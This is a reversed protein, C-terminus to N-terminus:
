AAPACVHHQQKLAVLLNMFFPAYEPRHMIAQFIPNAALTKLWDLCLQTKDHDFRSSHICGMNNFLALLLLMLDNVEFTGWADEIVAFAMEYLQLAGDLESAKGTQTAQIHVSLGMNYLLMAIMRDTNGEMRACQPLSIARHFLSFLSANTSSSCSCFSPLAQLPISCLYSNDRDLLTKLKHQKHKHLPVHCSVGSIDIATADQYMKLNSLATDLMSVTGDHNGQMMFRVAQNNLDVINSSLLLSTSSTCTCTSTSTSASSM